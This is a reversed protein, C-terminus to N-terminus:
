PLTFFSAPDSQNAYSTELWGASRAVSSIRVEDITGDMYGSGGASGIYLTNTTTAPTGYAGTSSNDLAGNFYLEADHPGWTNAGYHFVGAVHVWTDTASVATTSTMWVPGSVTFTINPGSLQLTYESSKSAIYGSWQSLSDLSVWAEITFDGTITLETASAVAVSATSGDFDDAGDIQGASDQGSGTYTGDNGNATADAHTGGTESLHQVLSFGSDWVNTVDEQSAAAANGYYLYLVTDASASLSPVKVWAALEGTASDYYEIEHSLKTTGDAATFLIDDADAQAGAALGADSGLSILVPFDTLAGAVQTYDITVQKRYGWASDYWGAALASGAMAQLALVALVGAALLTRLMSM